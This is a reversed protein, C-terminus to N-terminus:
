RRFSTSTARSAIEQRGLQPRAEDVDVEVELFERGADIRLQDALQDVDRASTCAEDVAAM